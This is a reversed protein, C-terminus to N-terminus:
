SNKINIRNLARQLSVEARRISTNDDKKELRKRAREASRKARELDIEEKGEITEVLIYAQNDNLHLIGSSIAFDKENEDVTLTLKSIELMAVIPMHNPLLTCEGYATCAHIKSAEFTHYLGSPTVIKVHIM